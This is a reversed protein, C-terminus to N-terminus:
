QTELIQNNVEVQFWQSKGLLTLTLPQFFSPPASLSIQIMSWWFTWCSPFVAKPLLLLFAKRFFKSRTCTDGYKVAVIRKTVRSFAQLNAKYLCHMQNIACHREGPSWFSLQSLPPELSSTPSQPVLSSWPSSHPVTNLAPFKHLFRCGVTHELKGEKNKFHLNQSSVLFQLISLVDISRSIQLKKQCFLWMKHSCRMRHGLLQPARGM